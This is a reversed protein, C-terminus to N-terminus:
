GRRWNVDWASIKCVGDAFDPPPAHLHTTGDNSPNTRCSAAYIANATCSASSRCWTVKWATSSSTLTFSRAASTPPSRRAIEPRNRGIEPFQALIRGKESFADASREAAAPNKQQLDELITELDTEAQSSRRVEAM